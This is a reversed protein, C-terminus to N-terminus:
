LIDEFLAAADGGGPLTQNDAEYAASSQLLNGRGQQWM